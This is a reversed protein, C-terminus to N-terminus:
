RWVAHVGEPTWQTLIERGRGPDRALDLAAFVPHPLPWDAGSPAVRRWRCVLPTPPAALVAARDEWGSRGYAREARRLEVQTPVWLWPRDDVNFVPAGLEVAAVDGGLVWGPEDLRDVNTAFERAGPDPATAVAVVKLPQWVEALAWFLDPLTPENGPGVLGAEVLHKVANSIATPSMGVETAVSRLSPPSTPDCLLAAAYAIGARGRIPGEAAPRPAPRIRAGEEDALDRSPRDGSAYRVEIDRRGTPIHAGIRRDLWAWKHSELYRRAPETIRNAVVVKLGRPATAVLQKAQAEGVADYALVRAPREAEGHRITVLDPGTVVIDLDDLGAALRVLEDLALAMQEDHRLRTAPV